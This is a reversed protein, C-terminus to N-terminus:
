GKSINYEIFLFLSQLWELFSKSLASVKKFSVINYINERSNNNSFIKFSVVIALYSVISRWLLISYPLFQIITYNEVTIAFNMERFFVLFYVIAEWMANESDSLIICIRISKGKTRINLKFPFIGWPSM